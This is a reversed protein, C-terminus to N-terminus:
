YYTLLPSSPPVQLLTIIEEKEKARGVLRVGPPVQVCTQKVVNREENSGHRPIQSLINVLNRRIEAVRKEDSFLALRYAPSVLLHVKTILNHGANLGFANQQYRIGDVLDDAELLVHGLKELWDRVTPSSSQKKEAHSLKDQHARVEKAVEQLEKKMSKMEGFVDFSSDWIRSMEPSELTELLDNAFNSVIAAAM